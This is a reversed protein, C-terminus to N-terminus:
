GSSRLASTSTRSRRCRRSASSRRSRRRAPLSARDRRRSRDTSATRSCSLVTRSASRAAADVDRGRHEEGKGVLRALADECLEAPTSARDSEHRMLLNLFANEDRTWLGDTGYTHRAFRERDELACGRSQAANRDGVQRAPTHECGQAEAKESRSAVTCSLRWKRMTARIGDM